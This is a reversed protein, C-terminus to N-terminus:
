NLELPKFGGFVEVIIEYVNEGVLFSYIESTKEIPDITEFYSPYVVSGIYYADALISGFNATYYNYPLVCYLKEQKVADLTNFFASDNAIDTLVLELGGEDVFIIDPNWEILQEPDIFIHDSEVGGAVNKANIFDFPAYKAETSTLGHSGRYSVGGVYVAPKSEESIDQTRTNLDGIITEFFSIVEEARAEKHLIQGLLQLAEYFTERNAELDGYRLVIVPIGTKGQLEDAEGAEAYTWFIVDPSQAVILESDGGHIPGISPLNQFEPHAINYPRTNNSTHEIEEVGVVLDTVNMYVLLRLAGAEIGVVRDIQKPVTIKRGAMDTITDEGDIGFDIMYISVITGIIIVSIIISGFLGKNNM